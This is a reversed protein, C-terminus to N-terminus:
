PPNAPAPPAARPSDIEVDQAESSISRSRAGLEAATRRLPEPAADEVAWRVSRSCPCTGGVRKLKPMAHIADAVSLEGAAVKRLAEAYARLDKTTLYAEPLTKALYALYEDADTFTEGLTGVM